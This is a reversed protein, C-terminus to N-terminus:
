PWLLSNDDQGLIGKTKNQLGLHFSKLIPQPNFGCGYIKNRLQGQKVEWFAVGDKNKLM